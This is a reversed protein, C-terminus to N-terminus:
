QTLFSKLQESTPLKGALKLKGNVVIAPTIMVGYDIFKLMDSIKEINYEIGLEEAAQQAQQYLSDCKACGSGLILIKTM